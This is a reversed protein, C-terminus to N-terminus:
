ACGGFGAVFAAARQDDDQYSRIGGDTQGSYRFDHLNGALPSPNDLNQFIEDAANGASTNETTQQENMAEAWLDAADDHGEASPKNVDSM